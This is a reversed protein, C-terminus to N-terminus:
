CWYILTAAILAGSLYNRALKDYRTAVRRWDKLRCWLNEVQHRTRYMARSYPLPVKRTRTSPIVAEVGHRALLTRIANTDYGRDAILRTCRGRAAEILTPAVTMDNINGASLQLLRPRGQDDTLGHLKTTRGGRSKGIAQSYAGRKRGRGLSAGQRAHRRDRGHGIGLHRQSRDAGRVHGALHRAPELPQVPQVGDHVARVGAPLDALASRDQAHARDRCDGRRDDVRHAGKRGRPLLPELRAWEADSLWTVQRAM